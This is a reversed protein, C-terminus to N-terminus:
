HTSSQPRRIKQAIWESAEPWHGQADPLMAPTFAKPPPWNVEHDQPWAVTWWPSPTEDPPRPYARTQINFFCTIFYAHGLSMGFELAFPTRADVGGIAQATLAPSLSYYSDLKGDTDIHGIRLRFGDPPEPNAFFAHYDEVEFTPYGHDILDAVLTKLAMWRSIVVQDRVPIGTRIGRIMPEVLPAAANEIQSMWQNNCIECVKPIRIASYTQHRRHTVDGMTSGDVDVQRESLVVDVRGGAMERLIKNAWRPLLDEESLERMEDCFVCLGTGEEGSYAGPEVVGRAYPGSLTKLEHTM